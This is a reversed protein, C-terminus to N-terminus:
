SHLAGSKELRGHILAESLPWRQAAVFNQLAGADPVCQHGEEKVRYRQPLYLPLVYIYLQLHM